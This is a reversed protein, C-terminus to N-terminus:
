ACIMRVTECLVVKLSSIESIVGDVTLGEAVAVVQTVARQEIRDDPRLDAETPAAAEKQVDALAAKLEAKAAATPKKKSTTKEAM